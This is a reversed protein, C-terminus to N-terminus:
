GGAAIQQTAAVRGWIALIGGAISTIGSAVDGTLIQGVGAVIAVIGGWVGKSQWWAKGTM